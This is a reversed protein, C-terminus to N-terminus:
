LHYRVGVYYMRGIVDYITGNFGGASPPPLLNAINNVKVYIQGTGLVNVAAGADWYIAGPMHNYNITPYNQAQFATQVPCSGPNCQIDNNSFTGANFWRQILTFSGISNTYDESYLVKWTPITGGQSNYTGSTTYNGLAGANNACVAGVVGPCLVWKYTKTGLARIAFNGPIGWNDLKFQYSTELDVGTTVVNAVNSLPTYYATPIGGATYPVANLTPIFSQGCFTANGAACNNVVTQPAGISQIIHQVSIHYYDASARFGRIYEPQFVIGLEDTKSTEPTLLLNGATIQNAELSPNGPLFPDNASNNISVPPTYIESLNPARLDESEIARIRVGPAPTDWVMGIKWTTWNGSQSYHEFRAGLDADLSGWGPTKYLPVGTEVFVEDVTYQGGGEHYNGAYWAGGATTDAAFSGYNCNCIAPNAPYTSTYPDAVPVTIGNGYPDSRLHFNELRYDVGVALAIDGAWDAFPKTNLTAGFAEQRQTTDAFPGHPPIIYNSAAATNTVGTGIIDYPQCGAARAAAEACGIQGVPIGNGGAGTGTGAIANIAAYFNPLLPMNTIRLYQPAEAYEAYTDWTWKKSFLDFSGDGGIVFRRQLRDINVNQYNSFPAAIGYAMTGSPYDATCAAAVSAPLYANNCAITLNPRGFAPTPESNSNSNAYNFTAFIEASPTIDFSVRTFFTDRQIPQVLTTPQGQGSLDGPQSPTSICTASTPCGSIGAGGSAFGALSPVGGGAFNFAYPAGNAGFATGHLPGSIILGGTTTNATQGFPTWNLEPQGAPTNKASGYSPSSSCTDFNRGDLAACGFNNWPSGSTIVGQDNEYDAAVEIHARGGLFSTGAAMKITPTHNDNFASTGYSADVKFGEFKKDTVINVVGAVADSGWSASAGGTVVDVRQVLIQPLQSVDVIGNYNAGIVREGDLLTLTRLPSFGRLSFASLGQLGTSTSGTEYTQGTSGQLAPLEIVADFLNPQAIKALDESNLVQTPTPADFGANQLRTSSVVATELEDTTEVTGVATQAMALGSGLAFIVAGGILRARAKSLGAFDM